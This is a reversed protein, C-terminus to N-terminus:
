SSSKNSTLFTFLEIFLSLDYIPFFRFRFRAFLFCICIAGIGMVWVEYELGDCGNVM